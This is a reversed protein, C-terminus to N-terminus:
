GPLTAFSPFLFCSLPLKRRSGTSSLTVHIRARRYFCNEEPHGNDQQSYHEPFQDRCVAALGTFILRAIAFEHGLHLCTVDFFDGHIETLDAVIELAFVDSGGVALVLHSDGLFIGGGDGFLQAVFGYLYFDLFNAAGVPDKEEEIAERKEKEDAEAQEQHALHM